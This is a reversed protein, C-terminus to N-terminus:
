ILKHWSRVSYIHSRPQPHLLPVCLATVAVQLRDFPISIDLKVRKGSKGEKINCNTSLLIPSGQLGLWFHGFILM